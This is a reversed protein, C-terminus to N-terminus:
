EINKKYIGESVRPIYTLVSQQTNLFQDYISDDWFM